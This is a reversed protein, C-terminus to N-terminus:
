KGVCFELFLHDLVDEVDVKGTLGGLAFAARRLDEARLETEVMDGKLFAGLAEVTRHLLARHRVRTIMVGEGLGLQTSAQAGILNILESLGEGTEASIEIDLGESQNKSPSVVDGKNWISLVPVGFGTLEDPVSLEPAAGDVVWLILGAQRSTEVSRRIGEQEVKSATERLGATDSLVIPYGEIDLRVEIVDRTTGAEDSVIAVDRQALANLLRSKGANPRGAIAVRFGDRVIEGRHGDDLHAEIAKYLDRVPAVAEGAVEEPVDGEDSFDLASEVLAIAYILQSRWNEYLSSFRGQMQALAQSHQAKTDAAILDALGEVELLDLKGNEFGRRSFEGREALRCGPFSGLAELVSEVVARGGHVHFEVVDEGTFSKPGKFFLVLAQDLLTKDIPHYLSCVTAMRPQPVRGCMAEALEVVGAGSARVVAVGSPGAGSSLAYIVDGGMFDSMSFFWYFARLGSKDGM